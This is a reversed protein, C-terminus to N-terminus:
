ASMGLARHVDTNTMGKTHELLHDLELAGAALSLPHLLPMMRDIADLGSLVAGRQHELEEPTGAIDALANATGMLINAEPSHELGHLRAAHCTIYVLRGALSAIAEADDGTYAHIGAGTRLREVDARIRDVVLAQTVPNVAKYRERDWASAARRKRTYTTTKRM